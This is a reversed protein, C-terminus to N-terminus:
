KHHRSTLVNNIDRDYPSSGFIYKAKYRKADYSTLNCDVVFIVNDIYEFLKLQMEVSVITMSQLM